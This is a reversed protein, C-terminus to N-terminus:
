FSTSGKDVACWSMLEFMRTIKSMNRGKARQIKTFKLHTKVDIRKKRSGKVLFSCRLYLTPETGSARLLSLIVIFRTMM